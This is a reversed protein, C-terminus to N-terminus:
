RIISNILALGSIIATIIIAIATKKTWKIIEKQLKGSSESADEIAKIVKETTGM